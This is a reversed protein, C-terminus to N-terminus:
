ALGGFKEVEALSSGWEPGLWFRFAVTAIERIDIRGGFIYRM